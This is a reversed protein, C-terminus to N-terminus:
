DPNSGLYMRPVIEWRKNPDADYAKKYTEYAGEYNQRAELDTGQKYASQGKEAHAPMALFVFLLVFGATIFWKAM